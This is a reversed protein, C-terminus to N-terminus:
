SNNRPCQGRTAESSHFRNFPLELEHFLEVQQIRCQHGVVFSCTKWGEPGVGGRRAM